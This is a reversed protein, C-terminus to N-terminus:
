KLTAGSSLNREDSYWMECAKSKTTAMNKWGEKKRRKIKYAWCSVVLKASALM